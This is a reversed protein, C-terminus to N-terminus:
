QKKHNNKKGFFNIVSHLVAQDNIVKKALINGKKDMRRMEMKRNEPSWYIRLSKNFKLECWFYPYGYHDFWVSDEGEKREFGLEICKSYNFEM